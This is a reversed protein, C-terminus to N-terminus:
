KCEAESGGSPTSRDRPADRRSRIPEAVHREGREQQLEQVAQRRGGRQEEDRRAQREDEADRADDVERVPREVHQARVEGVTCAIEERRDDAAAARREPETDDGGCEGYREDACQDLYQQQLAEVCCGLEKLERRCEAHHEDHAIGHEGDEAGGVKKSRARGAECTGHADEAVGHRLVIQEEHRHARDHEDREREEHRARAEADHDAGRAFVTRQRRREADVLRAQERRDEREPGKEGPEGAGQLERALGGVEAHVEGRYGVREDHGHDASQARNGAREQGREDDREGLRM